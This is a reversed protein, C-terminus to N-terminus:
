AVLDIIKRPLQSPDQASGQTAQQGNTQATSGVELPPTGPNAAMETQESQLVERAQDTISVQFAQNSLESPIQDTRNGARNQGQEKELSAVQETMGSNQSQVYPNSGSVGNIAM